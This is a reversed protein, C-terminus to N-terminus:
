PTTTNNYIPRAMIIGDLRRYKSVNTDEIVTNCTSSPDDITRLYICGGSSKWRYGIPRHNSNFKFWMKGKGIGTESDVNDRITNRTDNGHKSSSSDIVYISFEDKDNIEKPFSWAMMVHGTNEIDANHRWNKNYRTVIIDGPQIEKYSTFVKWYKHGDTIEENLIKKFYEYYSHAKPRGDDPYNISTYATLKKYHDKLVMELIFESVFGSCDYKYIGYREDKYREHQYETERLNGMIYVMRDYFARAATDKGPRHWQDDGFVLSINFFLLYLLIIIGIIKRIKKKAFQHNGGFPCGPGSPTNPKQVATGFKSCMYNNNEM